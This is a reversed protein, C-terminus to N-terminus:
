MLNHWGSMIIFKRVSRTSAYKTVNNCKRNMNKVHGVKQVGCTGRVDRPIAEDANDLCSVDGSGRNRAEVFCALESTDNNVSM